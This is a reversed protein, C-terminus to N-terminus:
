EEEKVTELKKELGKIKEVLERERVVWKMRLATQKKREDIDVQNGDEFGISLGM